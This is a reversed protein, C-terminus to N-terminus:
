LQYCDIPSIRPSQDRSKWAANTIFMLKAISTVIDTEGGSAIQIESVRFM